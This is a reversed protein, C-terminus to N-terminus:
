RMRTGHLSTDAQPSGPAVAKPRPTPSCRLNTNDTAALAACWIVPNQMCFKHMLLPLLCYQSLTPIRRRAM